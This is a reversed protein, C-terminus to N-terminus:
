NEARYASETTPNEIKTVHSTLHPRSKLSKLFAESSCPQAFFMDMSRGTELIHHNSVKWLLFMTTLYNTKSHVRPLFNLPSCYLCYHKHRPVIPSITAGQLNSTRLGVM